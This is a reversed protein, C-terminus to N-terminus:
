FIYIYLAVFNSINLFLKVYFVVQSITLHAILIHIHIHFRTHDIEGEEVYVHVHLGKFIRRSSSHLKKRLTDKGKYFVKLFKLNNRCKIRTLFQHIM